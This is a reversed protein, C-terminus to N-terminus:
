PRASQRELAARSTGARREVTRRSPPHCSFRGKVRSVDCDDLVVVHRAMRRSRSTAAGCPHSLLSQLRMAVQSRDVVNEDRTARLTESRSSAARVDTSSNPSRPADPDFLGYPM